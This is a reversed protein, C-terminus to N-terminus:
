IILILWALGFCHWSGLSLCCCVRRTLIWFPLAHLKTLGLEGAIENLIIEGGAHVAAKLMVLKEPAVNLQAIRFMAPM